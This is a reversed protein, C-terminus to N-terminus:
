MDRLASTIDEQEILKRTQGDTKIQIEILGGGGKNHTVKNTITWINRYDRNTHEQQLMHKLHAEADGNRQESLTEVINKMQERRKAYQERKVRQLGHHSQWLAQRPEEKIAYGDLEACGKAVTTDDERM